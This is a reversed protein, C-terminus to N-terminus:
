FVLEDDSDDEEPENTSETEMEEVQPTKVQIVSHGEADAFQCDDSRSLFTPTAVTKTGQLLLGLSEPQGEADAFQSDSRSLSTLPPATNTRQLLSGLREEQSQSERTWPSHASAAAKPPETTIIPIVRCRKTPQSSPTPVEFPSRKMTFTQSPDKNARAPQSPGPIIQSPFLANQPRAATYNAQASFVAKQSGIANGQTQSLSAMQYAPAATTRTTTVLRSQPPPVLRGTAPDYVPLPGAMMDPPAPKPLLPALQQHPVTPEAAAANASSETSKKKEKRRQIRQLLSPNHRHFSPNSYVRIDNLRVTSPQMRYLYAEEYPNRVFEWANMTRELSRFTSQTPFFRPGLRKMFEDKNWIVVMHDYEHNVGIIPSPSSKPHWTFMAFNIHDPDSTTYNVLEYLKRPFSVLHKTTTSHPLPPLASTTRPESAKTTAGGATPQPRRSQVPPNQLKGKATAQIEESSVNKDSSQSSASPKKTSGGDNQDKQKDMRAAVPALQNAYLPWWCGGQLNQSVSLTFM